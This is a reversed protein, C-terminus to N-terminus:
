CRGGSWLSWVTVFIPWACMLVVGLAAFLVLKWIPPWGDDDSTAADDQDTAYRESIM